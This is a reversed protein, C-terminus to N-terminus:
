RVQSPTAQKVLHDWHEALRGVGVKDNPKPNEPPPTMRAKRKRREERKRRAAERQERIADKEARIIRALERKSEVVREIEALCRQLYSPPAPHAGDM